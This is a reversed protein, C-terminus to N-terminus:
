ETGNEESNETPKSQKSEALLQDLSKINASVLVSDGGEIKPKNEFERWENITYVGTEITKKQYDARSLMDCAYLLRRDFYFRRKMWLAPSMVLKRLFENEIRTLFPGLTDALLETDALEATKYNSGEAYCLAPSVGFWRCIEIVNFRKSELFQMDASSMAMQQFKASGHIAVIDRGGRFKNEIDKSLKDLQKDALEGWGKVSTDNSVFGKVAGGNSFRNLIEKDSSSAIATTIRAHTIVSLGTKGDESYGKIHIIEDERYTGSVGAVHDNFTYTDTLTNHTVADPNVLILAIVEYTAKDRLPFVYANGKLLVQCALLKWFDFATQYPNPQVRLLYPLNSTFDEVFVDGKMRQYLMPLSALKNSLLEVCRYVTSIAMANGSISMPVYLVDGRSCEQTPTPASDSQSRMFINRINSLIGM